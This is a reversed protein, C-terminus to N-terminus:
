LNFLLDELATFTVPSSNLWVKGNRLVIAILLTQLALPPHKIWINVRYSVWAPLIVSLSHM